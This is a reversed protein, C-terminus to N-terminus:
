GQDVYYLFNKHSFPTVWQGWDNTLEVQLWLVRQEHNERGGAQKGVNLARKTSISRPKAPRIVVPHNILMHFKQSPPLSLFKEDYSLKSNLQHICGIQEQLFRLQIEITGNKAM